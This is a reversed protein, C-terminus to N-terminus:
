KPEKEKRQTRKLLELEIRAREYYVRAGERFYESGTGRCRQVRLTSDPVGLVYAAEKSALAAKM